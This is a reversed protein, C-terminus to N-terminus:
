AERLICTVRTGGDPVPEIKLEAGIVGARFQMIRVGIGSAEADPDEGISAGDNEVTLRLEGPVSELGIVIRSAHGHKLANNLAEKAIRYLHTATDRDQLEVARPCHFQCDVEYRERTSLALHELAVMLGRADVEVPVVGKIAKRVKVIAQKIGDAMAAAAAAEPAGRAALKQALRKSSLSLATLEQGVTDHLDHSIRQQERTIVELVQQSRLLEEEARRATSIDTAIYFYGRVGGDPGPDPAYTVNADIIRGDALDVATQFVAGDGGLVTRLHPELAAYREPRIVESIPLGRLERRSRGLWEETVRNALVIRETSDVYGMCFPLADLLIGVQDESFVM